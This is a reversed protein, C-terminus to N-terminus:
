LSRAHHSWLIGPQKEDISALADLCDTAAMGADMRAAYVLKVCAFSGSASNVVPDVTLRSRTDRQFWSMWDEAMRCSPFDQYYHTSGQTLDDMWYLALPEAHLVM